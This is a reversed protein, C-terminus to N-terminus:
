YGPVLRSTMTLGQMAHIVDFTYILRGADGSILLALSQPRRTSLIQSIIAICNTETIDQQIDHLVTEVADESGLRVPDLLEAYNRM